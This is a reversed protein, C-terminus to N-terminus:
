KLLDLLPGVTSVFKRAGEHKYHAAVNTLPDSSFAALVIQVLDALHKDYAVSAGKIIDGEEGSTLKAWHWPAADAEAVLVRTMYDVIPWSTGETLAEALNDRATTENKIATKAYEYLAWTVAQRNNDTTTM